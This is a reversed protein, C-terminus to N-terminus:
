HEIHWTSFYIDTLLWQPSTYPWAACVLTSHTSSTPPVRDQQPLETRSHCGQGPHPHRGPPVAWGWPGAMLETCVLIGLQLQAQCAVSCGQVHPGPSQEGTGLTQKHCTETDSIWESHKREASLSINQKVTFLLSLGLIGTLLQAWVAVPILIAWSLTMSLVSCLKWFLCM